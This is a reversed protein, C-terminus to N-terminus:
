WQRCVESIGSAYARAIASGGGGTCGKAPRGVIISETTHCDKFFQMLDKMSVNVPQLEHPGSFEKLIRGCMIRFM